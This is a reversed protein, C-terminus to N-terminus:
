GDPSSPLRTKVEEHAELALREGQDTLVIRRDRRDQGDRVRRM